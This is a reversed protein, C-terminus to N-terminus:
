LMEQLYEGVVQATPTYSVTDIDGAPVYMKYPDRRFIWASPECLALPQIRSTKETTGGSYRFMYPYPETKKVSAIAAFFPNTMYLKKMTSPPKKDVILFATMISNLNSEFLPYTLGYVWAVLRLLKAVKPEEGMKAYCLGAPGEFAQPKRIFWYGPINISSIWKDSVKYRAYNRADTGVKALTTLFDKCLEALALDGKRLCAGRLLGVWAQGDIFDSHRYDSRHYYCYTTPDFAKFVENRAEDLNM